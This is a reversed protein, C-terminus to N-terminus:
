LAKENHGNNSQQEMAQVIRTLLAAKVGPNNDLIDMMLPLAEEDSMERIGKIREVEAKVGPYRELVEWILLMAEDEGPKGRVREREDLHAEVKALRTDRLRIM